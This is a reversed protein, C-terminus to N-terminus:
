GPTITQGNLHTFAEGILARLAEADVDSLRRLYLCGKGTTHPGLQALHEEYAAFDHSIYISITKARPSFGVAPAEGRRGSAYEYRYSGFGVISPGWMVPEVGTAKQFLGCLAQADARRRPEAVAALFDAVSATTPITKPDSM